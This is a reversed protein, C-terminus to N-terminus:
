GNLIEEQFEIFFSEEDLNFSTQYLWDKKDIWQIKKENLRYYPDKIVGNALLDTHVTGPVKAPLWSHDNLKKFQWGSDINQITQINQSLLLKVAFSLYLILLPKAM